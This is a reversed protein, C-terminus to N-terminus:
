PPPEMPARLLAHSMMHYGLKKLLIDTENMMEKTGVTLFRVSNRSSEKEGGYYTGWDKDFVDALVQLDIRGHLSGELQERSLINVLSFRSPYAKCTAEIEEHWFTDGTTKSAWLLKVHQADLKSLEAQAVPLAETIGVGFAIVGVYTGPRRQYDGKKFVDISEGIKISDLYGSCLGNPYVKFTIDFEGPREASMSYSKPKYDPVCVKIVDGHDIRVGLSKLGHPNAFTLTHVPLRGPAAEVLCVKRLLRTPEAGFRAVWKDKKKGLPSSSLFRTWRSM